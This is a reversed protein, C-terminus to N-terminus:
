GRCLVWETSAPAPRELTSVISALASIFQDRQKGTLADLIRQDVRKAL